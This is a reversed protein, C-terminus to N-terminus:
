VPRSPDCPTDNKHIEAERGLLVHQAVRDGTKDAFLVVELRAALDRFGLGTPPRLHPRLEGLEPEQARGERFGVAAEAAPRDLRHDDGLLEALAQDDLRVELGDDDAAAEQAMAAARGLLFFVEGRQDTPFADIGKGTRLRLAAEIEVVDGGCCLFLPLPKVSFPWM